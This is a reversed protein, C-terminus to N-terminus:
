LNTGKSDIPHEVESSMSRWFPLPLTPSQLQWLLHSSDSVFGVCCQRGCYPKISDISLERLNSFKHSIFM